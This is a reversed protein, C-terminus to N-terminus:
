LWMMHQSTYGVMLTFLDWFTFFILHHLIAYTNVIRCKMTEYFRRSWKCLIFYPHTKAPMHMKPVISTCMTPIFIIENWNVMARITSHFLKTKRSNSIWFYQWLTSVSQFIKFSEWHSDRMNQHSSIGITHVKQWNSFPSIIENSLSIM